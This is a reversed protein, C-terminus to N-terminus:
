EVTQRKKKVKQKFPQSSARKYMKVDKSSLAAKMQSM